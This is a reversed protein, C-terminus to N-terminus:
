DKKSFLVLKGESPVSTSEEDGDSQQDESGYLEKEDKPLQVFYVEGTLETYKQLLMMAAKLRTAQSASTDQMIEAAISISEDAFPELAKLLRKLRNAGIRRASQKTGSPRGKPNGSQGPKFKTDSM